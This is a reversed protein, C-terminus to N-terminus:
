LALCIVMAVIFPSNNRVADWGMLCHDATMFLPRNDNATTNVLFGTCHRNGNVLILAIANKENQWIQGEPCNVNVQCWASQGFGLGSKEFTDPLRIHRYGHVVYAISIIGIDGVGNPVYYELIIQDSFVLGTAFGEIEYRTGINNVSTFAGINHQQDSSYIWFKAGDPIWFKDYLLNISLAGPSSLKLRWIRGGDVLTQWEGSNDLNYNVRRKYGFRPPIGLKEDEIDEQMIRHLDLQAFSRVSRDSRELAPIDTRFFSM